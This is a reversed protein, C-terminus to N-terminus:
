RRQRWTLILTLVFLSLGLIIGVLPPLYGQGVYVLGPSVPAITTGGTIGLLVGRFALMGGLGVIFSPIRLYATM